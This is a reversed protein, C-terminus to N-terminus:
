DGTAPSAVDQSPETHSSIAQRAKPIRSYVDDMLRLLHDTAELIGVPKEREPFARSTWTNLAVGAFTSLQALFGLPHDGIGGAPQEVSLLETLRHVVDFRTTFGPHTAATDFEVWSGTVHALTVLALTSGAVARYLDPFSPKGEIADAVILYGLIDAQVEERQSQNLHALSDFIGLCEIAEDVALKAKRKDRRAVTHGLLHHALEHAIVFSEAADVADEHLTERGKLRLAAIPNGTQVLRYDAWDVRAADLEDWPKSFRKNLEDVMEDLPRRATVDGYFSKLNHFFEDYATAYATLTFSYQINIEIVGAQRETWAKANLDGKLVRGVFLNNALARWEGPVAEILNRITLSLQPCNSREPKFELAATLLKEPLSRGARRYFYVWFNLDPPMRHEHFFKGRSNKLNAM